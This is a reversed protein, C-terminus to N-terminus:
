QLHGAWVSGFARERQERILTGIVRMQGKRELRQEAFTRVSPL